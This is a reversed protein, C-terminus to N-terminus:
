FINEICSKLLAPWDGNEFGYVVPLYPVKRQRDENICEM